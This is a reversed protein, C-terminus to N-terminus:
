DRNFRDSLEDPSRTQRGDALDDSVPFYKRLFKSMAVLVSKLFDYVIFMLGILVMVKAFSYECDYSKEVYDVAGKFGVMELALAGFFPFVLTFFLILLGFKHNSM